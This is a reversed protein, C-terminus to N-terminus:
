KNQYFFIGRRKIGAKKYYHLRKFFYRQLVDLSDVIDIVVPDKKGPFARQVRGVCQQINTVPNALVLTDLHPVDIGERFMQYTSLIVDFEHIGDMIKRKNSSVYKGIAAGCDELLRYLISIHFVRDTLVLIKRGEQLCNLVLNKLMVNREKESALDSNLRSLNLRTKMADIYQPEVTTTWDVKTYTTELDSVTGSYEFIKPGLIWTMARGCGDRRDPTATLGLMRRPTYGLRGLAMQISTTPVHHCEDFIVFGVDEVARDQRCLTQLMAIVVDNKTERISGQLIGVSV